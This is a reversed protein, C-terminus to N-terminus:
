PVNALSKWSLSTKSTKQLSLFADMLVGKAPSKKSNHNSALLLLKELIDVLCQPHHYLSAWFTRRMRQFLAATRYAPDAVKELIRREETQDGAEQWRSFFSLFFVHCAKFDAEKDPSRVVLCM